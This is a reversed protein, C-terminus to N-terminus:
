WAGTGHVHKAQKAPDADGDFEALAESDAQGDASGDKATELLGEPTCGWRGTAMTGDGVALSFAKRVVRRTASLPSRGPITLRKQERGELWEYAATHPNIKKRAANCHPMTPTARGKGDATDAANIIPLHHGEVPLM